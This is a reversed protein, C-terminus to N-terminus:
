SDYSRAHLSSVHVGRLLSTAGASWVPPPAGYGDCGPTEDKGGDEQPEVRGLDLSCPAEIKVDKYCSGGERREEESAALAAALEGGGGSGTGTM